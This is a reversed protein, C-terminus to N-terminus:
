LGLRFEGSGSIEIRRRIPQAAGKPSWSVHLVGSRIGKLSLETDDASVLFTQAGFGAEVLVERPAGTPPLSIRLDAGAPMMARVGGPRTLETLTLHRADSWARFCRAALIEIHHTRPDLRLIWRSNSEQADTVRNKRVPLLRGRADVARVRIKNTCISGNGWRVNLEGHIARQDWEQPTLCDVELRTASAARGTAVGHSLTISSGRVRARYDLRGEWSEPAAFRLVLQNGKGRTAFSRRAGTGPHDVLILADFEEQLPQSSKCVLQVTTAPVVNLEVNDDGPSAVRDVPLGIWRDDDVAVTCAWSSDLGGFEFGGNADTKVALQAPAGPSVFKQVHAPFAGGGLFSPARWESEGAKAVLRVRVGALPGTRSSVWGTITLGPSLTVALSETEPRLSRAGFWSAWGRAAVFISLSGREPKELWVNGTDDSDVSRISEWAHTERNHSGVTVTAGVIARGAISRIMVVSFEPLGQVQKRAGHPVRSEEARKEEHLSSSSQDSVSDGRPAEPIGGLLAWVVCGALALVLALIQVSRPASSNQRV